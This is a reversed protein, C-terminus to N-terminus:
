VVAAYERPSCIRLYHIQWGHRSSPNLEVNIYRRQFYKKIALFESYAQALIFDHVVSRYIDM